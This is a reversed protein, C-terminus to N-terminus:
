SPRVHNEEIFEQEKQEAVKKEYYEILAYSESHNKKFDVKNKQYEPFKQKLLELTKENIDEM